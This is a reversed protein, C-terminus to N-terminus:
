GVRLGFDTTYIGGPERSGAPTGASFGIGIERFSSNLINARHGSSHMWADVISEPTGQHSMGWAINEGYAWQSLGGSLYGVGELRADLGAEGSCEHDFCGTGDMHDNHRQAAKELKNPNSAQFQASGHDMFPARVFYELQSQPSGLRDALSVIAASDLAFQLHEMRAAVAARM